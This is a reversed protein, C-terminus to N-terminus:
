STRIIALYMRDKNKEGNKVEERKGARSLKWITDLKKGMKKREEMIVLSRRKGEAFGEINRIVTLSNGHTNQRYRDINAM